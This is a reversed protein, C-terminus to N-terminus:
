GVDKPTQPDNEGRYLSSDLLAEMEAAPRNSSKNRYHLVM